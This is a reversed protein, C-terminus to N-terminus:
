GECGPKRLAITADSRPVFVEVSIKQRAKLPPGGVPSFAVEVDFRASRETALRFEVNDGKGAEIMQSIPLTVTDLKGAELRVDYCKSPPFGLGVGRSHLLVHTQFRLSREARDETRYRLLGAVCVREAHRLASPIYSLVATDSNESFDALRITNSETTLPRGARCEEVSAVQFSLRPEIVAGWGENLISLANELGDEVIIVPETVVSSRRVIITAATLVIPHPTTNVVHASIRPFGWRFGGSYSNIGPVPGGARLLKLYPMEPTIVVNDGNRKLKYRLKFDDPGLSPWSPAQSSRTGPVAASISNTPKPRTGSDPPSKARSALAATTDLVTDKGVVNENSLSVDTTVSGGDQATVRAVVFLVVAMACVIGFAILYYTQNRAKIWQEPAFGEKLPVSGMEMQLAELRQNEPLSDLKALLNKNRQVKLGLILWAAVVMVYGVLALPHTAVTELATLLHTPQTPV